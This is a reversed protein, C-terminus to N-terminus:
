PLSCSLRGVAAGGTGWVVKGISPAFIRALFSPARQCTRPDVQGGTYVIPAWPPGQLAVVADGADSCGVAAAIAIPPVTVSAYEIAAPETSDALPVSAYLDLAIGTAGDTHTIHVIRYPSSDRAYAILDRELQVTKRTLSDVVVRMTVLARAQADRDELAVRLGAISDHATGLDITAQQVLRSLSRVQGGLTEVSYVRTTDHAARVNAREVRLAENKGALLAALISATVVGALALGSLVWIARKM